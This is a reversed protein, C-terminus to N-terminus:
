RHDTSINLEFLMKFERGATQESPAEFVEITWAKSEGTRYAAHMGLDDFGATAPIQLTGAGTVLRTVADGVVARDENRFLIRLAAPGGSVKIELVPLLQTGRRVTDPSPGELLPARWYSTASEITLHGGKLPFDNAKARRAETPLRTLSYVLIAGGGVLLAALLGVLGIRELMSLQWHPRLSLPVAHEPVVPSFENDDAPRAPVVASPPPLPAEATVPEPETPPAPVFEPVATAPPPPSEEPLPQQDWAELEGFEGEPTAARLSPGAPRNQLQPKNVNIRISEEGASPRSAQGNGAADSRDLPAERPAPLNKGLSRPVPVVAQSPEPAAQLEEDEDFAWLDLETTDQNLSGLSPRHRPPLSSGESSSPPQPTM